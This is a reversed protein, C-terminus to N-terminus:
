RCRPTSRRSSRFGRRLAAACLDGIRDRRDEGRGRCRNDYVPLDLHTTGGKGPTVGGSWRRATISRAKTHFSGTRRDDGPHHGQHEQRRPISMRKDTRNITSARVLTAGILIIGTMATVICAFTFGMIVPWHLDWFASPDSPGLELWIISFLLLPYDACIGGV